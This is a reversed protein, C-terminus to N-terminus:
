KISIIIKADDYSKDFLIFELKIKNETDKKCM